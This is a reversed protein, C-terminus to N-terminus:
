DNKLFLLVKEVLVEPLRDRNEATVNVLEADERHKAELILKDQAKWHVVALVVKQSDLAKQAAERFRVSFLEMPGIEDIAVIDCAEVANMIAKAGVDELDQMNVRYKGVQPGVKQSVRALWGRRSGSLDIVEFGIRAEGERVERSVMGGVNFGRKKLADATKMLVTTKGVGPSGILIVM